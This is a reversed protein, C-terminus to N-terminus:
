PRARICPCPRRLPRHTRATSAAPPVGVEEQVTTVLWKLYQPEKGIFIGANVDIYDAGNEFQDATVKKIAAEDQKEIAEGM